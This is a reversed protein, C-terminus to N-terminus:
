PTSIKGLALLMKPFPRKLSWRFTRDDDRAPFTGAALFAGRRGRFIRRDM